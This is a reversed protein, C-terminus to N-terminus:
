TYPFFVLLCWEFFLFGASERHCKFKVKCNKGDCGLSDAALTYGTGCSCEFSGDTNSCTQDCGGSDAQCEDVDAFGKLLMEM